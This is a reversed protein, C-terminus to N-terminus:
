WSIPVFAIRNGDGEPTDWKEINNRGSLFEITTNGDGEPTDWKEICFFNRVNFCRYNGDGEPTDWKEITEKNQMWIKMRTETGKRPIENRM